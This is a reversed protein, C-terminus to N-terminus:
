ARESWCGPQRHLHMVALILVTSQTDDFSYIVGYPFRHILCRRVADNLLPWLRPNAKIREVAAFIEIAFQYGLGPENDEYHNIALNLEDQADPHFVIQM